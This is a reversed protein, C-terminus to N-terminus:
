LISKTGKPSRSVITQKELEDYEGEEDGGGDSGRSAGVSVRHDDPVVVVVDSDFSEAVRLYM